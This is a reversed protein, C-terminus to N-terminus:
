AEKWVNYTLCKWLQLHLYQFTNFEWLVQEMLCRWNDLRLWLKGQLPCNNTTIVSTESFDSINGSSTSMLFDSESLQPVSTILSILWQQYCHGVNQLGSHLDDDDDSVLLDPALTREPRWESNCGNLNGQGTSFFIKDVLIVYNNENENQMKIEPRSSFQDRVVCCCIKSKTLQM